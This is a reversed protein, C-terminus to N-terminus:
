KMKTATIHDAMHKEANAEVLKRVRAVDAVEDQDGYLDRRYADTLRRVGSNPHNLKDFWRAELEASSNQPM